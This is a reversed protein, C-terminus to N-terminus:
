KPSFTVRSALSMTVTVMATQTQMNSLIIPFQDGNFGDKNDGYGDGDSDYQQSSDAPFEDLSDVVGDGDNDIDYYM